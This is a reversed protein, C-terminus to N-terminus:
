FSPVGLLKMVLSVPPLIFKGILNIGLLNTIIIIAFLYIMGKREQATWKFYASDTLFMGLVKSGDLPPVPILNFFALLLNLFIVYMLIYQVIPVMSFLHYFISLLIAILINSAPGALATLGSDRKYDKFNYPNFPVPKAYGYIFGASFWLILPLIITGFPDIHRKPNFSLRGARKASDDGLAFAAFAHSVEHIIISYFVMVVICVTSLTKFLQPNINM